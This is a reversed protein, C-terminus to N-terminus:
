PNNTMEPVYLEANAQLFWGWMLYFALFYMFVGIILRPRFRLEWRALIFGVGIVHLVFLFALKTQM